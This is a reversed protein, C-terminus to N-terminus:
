EENRVGSETGPRSSDTADLDDGPSWPVEVIMTKHPLLKARDDPTHKALSLRVSKQKTDFSAVTYPGLHFRETTVSKRDFGVEERELYFDQVRYAIENGGMVKMVLLGSDSSSISSAHHADERFQRVLLSHSRGLNFQSQFGSAFSLSRHILQISVLTVVGSLGILILQQILM